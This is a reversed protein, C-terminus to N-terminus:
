PSDFGPADWPRGDGRRQKPRRRENWGAAFAREPDDLRELAEAPVDETFVALIEPKGELARVGDEDVAVIALRPPLNQRIEVAPRLADLTAGPQLELLVESRQSGM